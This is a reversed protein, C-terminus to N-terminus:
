VDELAFLGSTPIDPAQVAALPERPDPVVAIRRHAMALYEPSLEIGIGNRGLRRAAALTTGSGVFLDLVTDGVRSGALICPYVLREPFTAFHADAYPQTPIEWVTRRYHRCFAGTSADSIEEHADMHKRSHQESGTTHTHSGGGKRGAAGWAHACDADGGWVLPPLGYDRLGYYPPSTIVTQVSGAPLTPLIELVHGCILRYSPM